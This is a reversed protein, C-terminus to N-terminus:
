NGPKAMARSIQHAQGTAYGTGEIAYLGALLRADMETMARPPAGAQPDFLTLITNVAAGDRPPHAGALTRMVVYDAIQAITKDLVVRKDLVVVANVTAAQTPQGFVSSSHSDSLATKPAGDEDREEILRWAHVPGKAFADRLDVDQLDDFFTSHRKRMMAIFGDADAAIVLVLNPECGAAGLRVKAGEADRRLRDAIADAKAAPVGLVLPCVPELFRALQGTDLAVLQRVFREAQKVPPQQKGTVTIAADPKDQAWAAPAALSAALLLAPTIFRM